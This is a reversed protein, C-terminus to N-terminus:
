QGMASLKDVFHDGTLWLNYMSCLFDPIYLVIDYGGLQAALSCNTGYKVLFFPFFRYKDILFFGANMHFIWSSQSVPHQHHWQNATKFILQGVDPSVWVM